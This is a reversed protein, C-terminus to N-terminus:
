RRMRSRSRQRVSRFAFPRRRIRPRRHNTGSLVRLASMALLLPRMSREAPAQVCGDMQKRSDTSKRPPDVLASPTGSPDPPADLHHALPPPEVGTRSSQRLALAGTAASSDVGGLCLMCIGDTQKRAHAAAVTVTARAHLRGPLLRRGDREAVRVPGADSRGVAKARSDIITQKPCSPAVLTQSGHIM